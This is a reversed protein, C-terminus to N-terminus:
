FSIAIQSKRHSLELGTVTFLAVKNNGNVKKTNKEQKEDFFNNKNENRKKM